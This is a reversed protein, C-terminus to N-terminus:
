NTQMKAAEWLENLEFASLQALSQNRQSSAMEMHRFRREFRGIMLRLSEEPDIKNWRAIQVATFLLDGLEQQVRVTDVHAKALEAKLEITEEDLKELVESLAGWEFGVKVARKSVEMAQMLAPLGRPIGDLVSDRRRHEQDQKEAKKIKEWNRLVEESDEVAVTGFVHPHRRVLKQVIGETVDDINFDGVEAALQAHFVVQLLVDGLEECLLEPDDAEIAEIAEYTEEIFYKRLSLSTQEKDWPCGDPARLRRMLGVLEPFRPRRLEPALAPVFVSTLYDVPERDLRYLPLSKVEQRDPVGAWRVLLINWEDPYDQMLALKTHSASATDFVQYLLLNRAVDPRGSLRSGDRDLVDTLPLSLADRIDCGDALDADVATLVAEVFSGSAVVSVPIDCKRAEERIQRVSDEAFLPHGPVAFTIPVETGDKARASGIVTAAISSYVSGFDPLSDYLSDFTSFSLKWERLMDVAPHRETRLFLMGAGAEHLQSARELAQRAGLSLSSADGPGLGVLTIM